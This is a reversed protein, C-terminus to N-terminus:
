AGVPVPAAFLSLLRRAAAPDGEIRMAGTGVAEGPALGHWVVAALTGTDTEVRAVATAAAPERGIKLRGGSVTLAFVQDGLALEYSEDLGAAAEPDFTTQLAVVAAEVGLPLPTEPLRARSGWRGLALLVPALEAGWDTLEYV